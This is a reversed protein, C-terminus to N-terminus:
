SLHRQVVQLAVRGLKAMYTLRWGFDQEVRRASRENVGLRNRDAMKKRAAIERIYRLMKAVKKQSMAVGRARQKENRSKLAHAVAPHHRAIERDEETQFMMETNVAQDGDHVIGMCKIVRFPRDEPCVQIMEELPHGAFSLKRERVVRMIAQRYAADGQLFIPQYKSPPHHPTFIGEQRRQDLQSAMDCFTHALAEVDGNVVTMGVIDMPTKGSERYADERLKKALSGVSKVRAIVRLGRAKMECLKSLITQQDAEEGCPQDIERPEINWRREYEGFLLETVREPGGFAMAADHIGQARDIEEHHGQKELRRKAAASRLTMAMADLGWFECLPAFFTEAELIDHLLKAENDSAPHQLHDIKEAALIVVSEFNTKKSLKKMRKLSVSPEEVGWLTPSVVARMDGDRLVSIDYQNLEGAEDTFRRRYDKAAQGIVKMDSLLAKTYRREEDSYHENQLFDDLVVAAKIDAKDPSEFRQVTDHLLAAHYASEPLLDGAFAGALKVVREAHEAFDSREQPSVELYERVAHRALEFIVRKYEPDHYKELSPSRDIGDTMTSPVTDM